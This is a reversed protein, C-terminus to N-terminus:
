GSLYQSYWSILFKLHVFGINARILCRLLNWNGEVSGPLVPPLCKWGLICRLVSKARFLLLSNPGFQSQLLQCHGVHVQLTEEPGSKRHWLWFRWQELWRWRRRPFYWIENFDQTLRLHISKLSLFFTQVISGGPYFSKFTYRGDNISEYGLVLQVHM